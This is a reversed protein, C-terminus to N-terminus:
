FIQRGNRVITGVEFNRPKKLWSQVQREAESTDVTFQTAVTRPVAGIAQAYGQLRATAADNVRTTRADFAEAAGSMAEYALGVTQGASQYAGGTDGLRNTLKDLDGIQSVILLNAEGNQRIYAENENVLEARRDRVQREAEALAASDGAQARVLLSRQLGTANADKTVEDLRKTDELLSKINDQVISEGVYKTGAELMAAFAASTVEALREAEAQSAEFAQGVLGIGAAAVLGAAAGAPGFGSFAEAAAGQFGDAISQASGDFSAAVEKANSFGDDKVQDFAESTEDAARKMPQALDARARGGTEKIQAQLKRVADETDGTEKQADRMAREVQEIDRGGNKGIDELLEAADDLPDIIGRKVGTQFDRTDSAISLTFGKAM